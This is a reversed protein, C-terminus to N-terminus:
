REAPLLGPLLPTGEDLRVGELALLRRKAAVGGFASFGGSKRGNALIRHCPIIIAIPNRSLARGVAQAAAPADTLRALEGYTATQGWAVARTAAYVQRHFAGTTSLDLQVDGFTVRQGAAYRRVEDAAQEVWAPLLAPDVPSAGAALLRRETETSNREPLQLRTIGLESWAIGCTGIATDFLKFRQQM